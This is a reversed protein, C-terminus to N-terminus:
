KKPGPVRFGVRTQATVPNIKEFAELKPAGGNTASADAKQTNQKAATPVAGVGANPGAGNTGDRQAKASIKYSGPEISHTCSAVYYLGSLRTGIDWVEVVSKALFYPDGRLPLTCKSPTNAAKKYLGQAKTKAESLSTATTAAAVVEKASLPRLALQATRIDIVEINTALGPRGKTTTNNGEASLSKKTIPDKAKVKVNGPQAAPSSEFQPYELLDSKDDGAFFRIVKRPQQGVAQPHFHWGSADIFFVYGIEKALMKMFQADTLNHQVVHEPRFPVSEIFTNGSGFGNREAILTAIDSYSKGYYTADVPLQNAKVAAKFQAEVTFTLGPTWKTISMERELSMAGVYGWSLFLTNGNDFIPDDPFRLDSNELKIVAKDAAKETDEYTMSLLRSIKRGLWNAYQPKSVVFKSTVEFDELDIRSPEKAGPMTIRLRITPTTREYTKATVIM